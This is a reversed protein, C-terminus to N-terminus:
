SPPAQGRAIQVAAQRNLLLNSGLILAFLMVVVLAVMGWKKEFVSMLMMPLSMSGLIVAGLTVLAYVGGPIVVELKAGCSSCTLSRRRKVSSM